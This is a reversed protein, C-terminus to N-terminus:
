DHHTKPIHTADLSRQQALAMAAYALLFGQMEIMHDRFCSDVMARITWFVPTSILVLAWPNAVSQSDTAKLGIKVFYVFVLLYLLAGPLGIALATDVWGNHSHSMNGAPNACIALLRKQFASRSGDLGWPHDFLLSVGSRVMIVRIGDGDIISNKIRDAEEGKGFKEEIENDISTTGECHIQLANGMWAASLRNTLGHWRSNTQSALVIATIGVAVLVFFGRTILQRRDSSAQRFSVGFILVVALLSFALGGRSQVLVMSLITLMLLSFVLNRHWGKSSLWAAALLLAAQGAAYGLIGHHEEIGAYGWPITATLAAKWTFMSMYLLIPISAALSFAFVSGIQRRALWWAVTGGAVMAMLGKGWQNLLSKWAAPPDVSFVPFVVLYAAWCLIPWPWDSVFGTRFPQKEYRWTWLSIALLLALFTNRLAITHSIPLVAFYGLGCLALLM